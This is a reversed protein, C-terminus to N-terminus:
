TVDLLEMRHFQALVDVESTTTNVTLNFHKHVVVVAGGTGAGAAMAGHPVLGYGMEDAVQGLVDHSRRANNIPIYGERSVPNDGILRYSRPAVIAASNGQMPAVQRVAGTAYAEVLGGHALRQMGGAGPSGVTVASLYVFARRDRAAYDIDKNAGSTNAIVEIRGDPLTNVTLGLDRLAQMSQGIEAATFVTRQGPIAMVQDRLIIAQAIAEAAGPNSILTRIDGPVGLYRDALEQAQRANLGMQTWEGVFQKRRDLVADQVAKTADSQSKGQQIATDYATQALERYSRGQELLVNQLERGRETTVNVTGNANFLEAAWSATGKRAEGITEVLKDLSAEFNANAQEVTLSIGFLRNWATELANVKDATDATDKGLIRISERLAAAGPLSQTMMSSAEGLADREREYASVSGEVVGRLDGLKSSLEAAAQGRATTTEIMSGSSADMRYESETTADLKSRVSDLQTGGAILAEVLEQHSIGAASVSAEIEKYENTNVLAKRANADFAGASDHLAAALSRQDAAAEQSEQGFAALAAGAVGIVLGWPGGLASMVSGTALAFRGVGGPGAADRFQGRMNSVGTGINDVIGRVFGIGRMAAGFTLWMGILPGLVGSMPEIVGLIGELVDLAVGVSGSMLPMADGGLDTVLGILGGIVRATQDGHEAWLGTLDAILTGARPLVEEALTGLHVMGQGAAVSGKSAEDVFGGVARGASGLFSEMGDFVPEAREISNVMGPMANQAFKIVGGTLSDVLPVSGAFARQMEPRLEGVAGRIRDSAGVLADAMPAADGTLTTKIDRGLATYSAQVKANSAVAATAIGAFLLPAALTAGTVAATAAASAGVTGAVAKTARNAMREVSSGIKDFTDSARDIGLVTFILDKSPM